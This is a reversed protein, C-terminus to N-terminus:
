LVLFVLRGLVIIGFLFFQRLLRLASVAIKESVGGGTGFTIWLCFPISLVECIHPSTIKELNLITNIASTRSSDNNRPRFNSGFYLIIFILAINLLSRYQMAFSQAQLLFLYCLDFLFRAQYWTIRVMINGQQHMCFQSIVNLYIDQEHLNEM